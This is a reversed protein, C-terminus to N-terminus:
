LLYGGQIDDSMNEWQRINLIDAIRRSRSELMKRVREPDIGTERWWDPPVEAISEALRSAAQHVRTVSRDLATAGGSDLIARQCFELTDAPASNELVSSWSGDALRGAGGFCDSHDAAILRFRGGASTMLLTNGELERDINCLWSDFAWLDVLEQPDILDGVRLPPGNEVDFRLVTGFHLGPEIKYPIEIKTAYSAAFQPSVAVLRGELAPLGGAALLCGCVVESILAATGIMGQRFKVVHEVGPEDRHNGQETCYVRRPKWRTVKSMWGNDRYAYVTKM